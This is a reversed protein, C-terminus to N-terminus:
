EIGAEYGENFHTEELEHASEFIDDGMETTVASETRKKRLQICAIKVFEFHMDLMLNANSLEFFFIQGLRGCFNSIRSM